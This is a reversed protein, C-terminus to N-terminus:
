GSTVFTRGSTPALVASVAAAVNPANRITSAANRSAGAAGTAATLSLLTTIAARRAATTRWSGTSRASARRRPRPRRRLPRSRASRTARSRRARRRLVAAPRGGGRPDHRVAGELGEPEGDRRQRVRAPREPPRLPHAGQGRNDGILVWDDTRIYFRNYMGGYHFDRKQAPEKGEMTVALNTGNMWSPPEIGVMSLVTPGVDHTSAFHQSVEGAARDDPHVIVFPVQALEPHLQSPVKGTFGREGLLYGHDSLLLIVTNKELGLEYFRDMFHGLWHDMMTVEGAYAAHARRLLEPTFNRAFGYPTM